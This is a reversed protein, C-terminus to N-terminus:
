GVRHLGARLQLFLAEDALLPAPLGNEDIDGRQFVRIDVLQEPHHQQLGLHELELGVGVALRDAVDDLGAQLGAPWRGSQEDALARQLDAVHHDAAVVESLHARKHIVLAFADLM